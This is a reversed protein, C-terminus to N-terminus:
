RSSSGGPLAPPETHRPTRWRIRNLLVKVKCGQSASFDPTPEMPPESLRPPHAGTEGLRPSVTVEAGEAEQTHSLLEWRGRVGSGLDPSASPSPLVALASEEELSDGPLRQTWLQLYLQQLRAMQELVLCLHELYRLGQGPLCAWTGPGLDGAVEAEEAGAELHTEAELCGEARCLRMESEPRGAPQLVGPQREWSSVPAPSSPPLHHSRELVQELKHSALFRSLRGPPEPSGMPEWRLSDQSLGALTALSGDGVAMEVGSDRSAVKLVPVQRRFERMDGHGKQSDSFPAPALTAEPIRRYTSTTGPVVCGRALAEAAGDRGDLPEVAFVRRRRARM